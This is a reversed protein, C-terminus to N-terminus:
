LGIAKLINEVTFAYGSEKIWHRIEGPDTCLEVSRVPYFNDDLKGAFGTCGEKHVGLRLDVYKPHGDAEGWECPVLAIVPRKVLSAARLQAIEKEAMELHERHYKATTKWLEIRKEDTTM